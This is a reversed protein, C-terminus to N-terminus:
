PALGRLYDVSNKIFHQVAGGEMASKTVAEGSIRSLVAVQARSLASSLEQATTFNLDDIIHQDDIYASICGSHKGNKRIEYRVELDGFNETMVFGIM